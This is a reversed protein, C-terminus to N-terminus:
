NRGISQAGQNMVRWRGYMSHLPAKKLVHKLRKILLLEDDSASAGHRELLGGRDNTRPGCIM